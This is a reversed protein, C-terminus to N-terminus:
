KVVSKVYPKRNTWVYLIRSLLKKAIRIIAEQKSMRRLYNNYSCTLSPDQRVAVWAAEILLERLYKNHHYKIGLDKRKQDSSRVSPILGVYSALNDLHPFRGPEMIETLLTIATTIGVGPITCLLNIDERLNYEVLYKRILKMMRLQLKRIEMLEELYIEIQEKGIPYNFQLSRLYELFNKSWHSIEWNGPLSHGYFLLYGKIQNKVRTQKKILQFRQRVISRLEQHLQDPVYIGELSGNELERALKRSDVPDRKQDKEKNSTPVDAPAVVINIFGFGELKRHIIYGCFGAEYVTYYIGGPYNEQMYKYLKEAIPDMSFTKLIMRNSRITVTWQRKHIDLGLYFSQNNFNLTSVQTEM